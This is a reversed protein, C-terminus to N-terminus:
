RRRRAPVGVYIGPEELDCTVVAGAGVITDSPIACSQIITAGVGILSNEGVHVGGSLTAGPGVHVYDGIVCDHEITSSTNIIVGKGIRSGPNLVAQDMVVSGEGILVDENVTADPSIISPLSIKYSRMKEVLEKRRNSLSVLGIGIVASLSGSKGAVSNLISDDGLYAIGLLAGRDAVDTYGIVEFRKLKKLIGILVKAHGGGGIVVIENM